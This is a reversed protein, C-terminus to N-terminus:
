YSIAIRNQWNDDKYEGRATSNVLQYDSFGYLDAFDFIVGGQIENYHWIEYPKNNVSNPYREIESPEGYILFVRGRDTKWGAKKLTSYRQNCEQVRGMYEKYSIGPKDETTESHKKWFGFLFDRKAQVNGLRSFQDVEDSVAIYKSKAFIDDCEENTLLGFNSGLVNSKLTGTTDAVIKVDPNYVFFKKITTRGLSEASDILSISLSYSDTPYKMIPISGVEVRSAAGSNIERTNSYYVKGKSNFIKCNLKMKSSDKAANKEYVEYYYFVVPLNQGFVLTPIPTVEFTNKYFISSTNTSNQIMRSALQLDSLAIKDNEFPKVHLIETIDKKNKDKNVDTVSVDCKYVGETLVFNLVGVLNEEGTSLKGYVPYKLKWQKDVVVKGSTSDKISIKLIGEVYKATDQTKVTFAAQNISYYIEIYNSTTDYGFQAYDFDFIGSNQSYSKSYFSVFILLLFFIKNKM